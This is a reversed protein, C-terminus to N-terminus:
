YVLANIAEYLCVSILYNIIEWQFNPTPMFITGFFLTFLCCFPILFNLSPKWSQKAANGVWTGKGRASFFSSPPFQWM